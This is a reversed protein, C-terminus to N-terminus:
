HEKVCMLFLMVSAAIVGGGGEGRLYNVFTM